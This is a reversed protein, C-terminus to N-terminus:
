RRFRVLYVAFSKLSLVERREKEELSKAWHKIVRFHTAARILPSGRLASRFVAIQM